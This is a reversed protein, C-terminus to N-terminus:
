GDLDRPTVLRHWQKALDSTRVALDEYVPRTPYRGTLQSAGNAFDYGGQANPMIIRERIKSPPRIGYIPVDHQVLWYAYWNLTAERPDAAGKSLGEAYEAIASGRTLGYLRSTAENLPIFTRWFQWGVVGRTSIDPWFGWGAIALCVAMVPAATWWGTWPGIIGLIVFLATGGLGIRTQTDM